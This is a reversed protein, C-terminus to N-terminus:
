RINENLHQSCSKTAGESEPSPRLEGIVGDHVGVGGGQLYLRVSCAYLSCHLQVAQMMLRYSPL